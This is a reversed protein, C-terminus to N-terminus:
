FFSFPAFVTNQLTIETQFSILGLPIIVFCFLSFNNAMRVAGGFWFM